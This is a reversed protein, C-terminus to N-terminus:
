EQDLKHITEYINEVYKDDYHVGGKLSNSQLNPSKKRLLTILQCASEVLPFFVDRFPVFSESIASTLDQIHSTM